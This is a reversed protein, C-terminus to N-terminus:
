AKEPVLLDQLRDRQRPTLWGSYQGAVMGYGGIVSGLTVTAGETM